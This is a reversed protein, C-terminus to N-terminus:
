TRTNKDRERRSLIHLLSGARHITKSIEIKTKAWLFMQTKSKLGAREAVQRNKCRTRGFSLTLIHFATHFASFNAPARRAMSAECNRAHPLQLLYVLSQLCAIKQPSWHTRCLTERLRCSPISKAVFGRPAYLSRALMLDTRDLHFYIGLIRRERRWESLFTLNHRALEFM